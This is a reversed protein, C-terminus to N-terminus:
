SVELWPVELLTSDKRGPPHGHMGESGIFQGHDSTIVTRGSLKDVLNSVEELVIKLNEIYGRRIGERGVEHYTMETPTVPALGVMKRIDWIREKGLIRVSTRGVFLRLKAFWSDLLKKGGKVSKRGSLDSDSMDLGLGIYPPHPQRYHIILNGGPNGDRVELAVKSVEEPPTAGMERDWAWDEWADIVEDFFEPAYFNRVGVKSNIRPNASIYITNEWKEQFTNNLWEHTASGPSIVKRLSGNIHKEYVDEFIDFRTADLIILNWREEQRLKQIKEKQKESM